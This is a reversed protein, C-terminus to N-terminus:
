AKESLGVERFVQTQYFNPPPTYHHHHALSKALVVNSDRLRRCLTSGLRLQLILAPAAHKALLEQYSKQTMVFARLNELTRITTSRPIKDFIATEGFVTGPGLTSMALPQGGEMRKEENIRGELIFGLFPLHDKQYVLMTHAPASLLKFRRLLCQCEEDTLFHTWGLKKLKQIGGAEEVPLIQYAPASLLRELRKSHRVPAEGSVLLNTTQALRQAIIQLVRDLFHAAPEPYFDMFTKFDERTLEMVLAGHIVEVSASRTKGDLIAMEGFSQGPNIQALCFSKGHGQQKVVQAKGQVLVYLAHGPDGETFLRAKAPISYTKIFEAMARIYSNPFDRTWFLESLVNCVETNSVPYVKAEPCHENLGVM